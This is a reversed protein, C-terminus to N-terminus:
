RSILKKGVKKTLKPIRKNLDKVLMETANQCMPILKDYNMVPVAGVLAVSKKSVASENHSFVKKAERNYLEMTINAKIGVNGMGGLAIKPEWTYYLSIYMVGDIDLDSLVELMHSETRWSRLLNGGSVLVQYGDISIFRNPNVTISSPLEYNRYGPNNIVDEEPVIEFPFSELYDEKFVEHFNILIPEIDFQENEKEAMEYFSARAGEALKDAGILKDAYFTVIAIKKTQAEAYIGSLFVTFLLLTYRKM